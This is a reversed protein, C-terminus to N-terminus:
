LPFEGTSTTAAPAPASPAEPGPAAPESPQAADLADMKEIVQIYGPFLQLCQRYLTLAEDKAGRAAALDGLLERLGFVVKPGLEMSLAARAAAEAEASRDMERLLIARQLHAPGYRPAVRLLNALDRLALDLRGIRRDAVALDFLSLRTFVSRLNFRAPSFVPDAKLAQEFARVAEEYENLYYYAVGLSNWVEERDAYDPQLALFEKLHAVARPYEGGHILLQALSVRAVQWPSSPPVSDDLAEVVATYNEVAQEYLLGRKDFLKHCVQGLLFRTYPSSPDGELSEQLAALAGTLDGAKFLSAGRQYSLKPDAAAFVSCSFFAFVAAAGLCARISM